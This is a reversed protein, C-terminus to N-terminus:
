RSLSRMPYKSSLAPFTRMRGYEPAFGHLEAVLKQDPKQETAQHRHDPERDHHRCSIVVRM